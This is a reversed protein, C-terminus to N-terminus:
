CESGLMLGVHLMYVPSSDRYVGTINASSERFSFLFVFFSLICVKKPM